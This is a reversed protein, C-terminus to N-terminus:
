LEWKGKDKNYYMHRPRRRDEKLLDNITPKKKLAKEIAEKMASRNNRYIEDFNADKMDSLRPDVWVMAIICLDEVKAKPILGAEVADLVGDAIGAQVPGGFVQVDMMKKLQVKPVMITVPKVQRGGDVLCFFRSFGASQGMLTAFAQGVPGDLEGIAIEPETWLWDESGVGMAEGVRIRIRDAM